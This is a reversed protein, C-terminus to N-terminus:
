LLLKGVMYGLGFAAGVIVVLVLTAFAIATLREGM